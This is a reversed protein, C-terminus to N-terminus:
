LGENFQALSKKAILSLKAHATRLRGEQTEFCDMWHTNWWESVADASRQSLSYYHSEVVDATHHTLRRADTESFLRSEIIETLFGKRLHKLTLDTGLIDRMARNLIQTMYFASRSFAGIKKLAKAFLPPIIQSVPMRKGTKSNIVSYRWVGGSEHLDDAKFASASTSRMGLTHLYYFCFLQKATDTDMGQEQMWYPLEAQVRASDSMSVWRTDKEMTDVPGRVLQAPNLGRHVGCAMARSFVAKVHRWIERAGVSQGKEEYANIKAQLLALNHAQVEAEERPDTTMAFGALEGIRRHATKKAVGAAYQGSVYEACLRQGREIVSRATGAEKVMVTGVAEKEMERLAKQAARELVSFSPNETGFTLTKQKDTGGVVKRVYWRGSPDRYLGRIGEVKGFVKGGKFTVPRM